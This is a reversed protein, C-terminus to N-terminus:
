MDNSKGYSHLINPLEAVLQKMNVKFYRRKPMGKLETEILGKSELWKIIGDLKHQKVKIHREFDEKSHFFMRHGRRRHYLYRFLMYEFVVIEELTGFYEARYNALNQFHLVRWDFFNRLKNDSVGQFLVDMEEMAEKTQELLQHLTIAYELISNFYFLSYEQKSLGEADNPIKGAFELAKKEHYDLLYGLGEMEMEQWNTFDKQIKKLVLRLAKRKDKYEKVGLDTLKAKDKKSLNIEDPNM